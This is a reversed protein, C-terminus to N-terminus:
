AENQQLRMIRQGNEIGGDKWGFKRYFAYARTSVDPSTWLWIEACASARLWLVALEMLKRGIGRGEFEPLVAIVWFEGSSGNGMSFGVINQDVECVWGKHTTALMTTVSEETIGVQRLAEVSYRNERVLTRVEICRGIDRKEMQRIIMPAAM